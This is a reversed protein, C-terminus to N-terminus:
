EPDCREVEVHTALKALSGGFADAFLGAQAALLIRMSQGKGVGGITRRNPGGTERRRASPSLADVPQSVPSVAGSAAVRHRRHSGTSHPAHSAAMGVEEGPSLTTM